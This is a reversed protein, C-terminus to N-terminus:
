MYMTHLNVNFFWVFKLNLAEFMNHFSHQKEKLSRRALNLVICSKEQLREREEMLHSVKWSDHRFVMYWAITMGNYIQLWNHVFEWDEPFSGSGDWTLLYCQHNILWVSSWSFLPIHKMSRHNCLCLSWQDTDSGSKLSKLLKGSHNGTVNAKM